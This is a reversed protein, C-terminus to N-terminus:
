GNSRSRPFLLSFNFLRSRSFFSTSNGDAVNNQSMTPRIFVSLLYLLSLVFAASLFWYYLESVPRFLKEDKVSPELLDLRKYIDELGRTSRARFYYGGTQTAIFKLLDEDLDRSPNVTQNGFLAFPNISNGSLMGADMSDAGIGLTYIKLGEDAALKAAQRPDVQGATNAGDTLLILIRDKINKERLRKVALGIADGIATEKGALGIESEELMTRVTTRDFTLPTQIYARKGFLILGLRDGVRRQIFDGGVSKVVDLRTVPKGNLKLDPLEMSGSIDVAMMLDRGTVPLSVPDGLWQPRATAIILLMWIIFFYIFRKNFRSPELSYKDKLGVVENYFPVKLIGGSSQKKAPLFVMLFPLPILLFVWQWLFEIM